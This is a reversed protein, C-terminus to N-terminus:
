EWYDRLIKKLMKTLAGHQMGAMSEMARVSFGDVFIAVVLRLGDLGLLLPKSHREVWPKYRMSYNDMTSDNLFRLPDRNVVSTDVREGAMPVINSSLGRTITEYIDVISHAASAEGKSLKLRAIPDHRRRSKVVTYPSSLDREGGVRNIKAIVKGIVRAKRKALDLAASSTAVARKSSALRREASAVESLASELMITAPQPNGRRSAEECVDILYRFENTFKM